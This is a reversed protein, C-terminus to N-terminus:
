VLVRGLYVCRCMGSGCSRNSGRGTKKRSGREELSSGVLRIVIIHVARVDRHLRGQGLYWYDGVMVLKGVKLIILLKM